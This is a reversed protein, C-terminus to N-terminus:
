PSTKNSSGRKIMNGISIKSNKSKTKPLKPMSARPPSGSSNQMLPPVDDLSPADTDNRVSSSLLDDNAQNTDDYSSAKLASRPTASASDNGLSSRMVPSHLMSNKPSGPVSRIDASAAAEELEIVRQSLIAVQEQLQVNRWKDNNKASSSVAEDRKTMSIAKALKEKLKNNEDKMTSNLWKMHEIKETLEIKERNDDTENHRTDNAFSPEADLAAIKQKLKDVEIKHKHKEENLSLSLSSVERELKTTKSTYDMLEQQMEEIEARRQLSIKEMGNQLQDMESSMNDVVQEQAALTQELGMIRANKEKIRISFEERMEHNDKELEKLRTSQEIERISQNEKTESLQKHLRDIEADRSSAFMTRNKEVSERMAESQLLKDRLESVLKSESSMKLIEIEDTLTIIKQNLADREDGLENCQNTLEDMQEQSPLPNGNLDIDFTNSNLAEDKLDLLEKELSAIQDDRAKIKAEFDDVTRDALKRLSEIQKNFHEETAKKEGNSKELEDRLQDLEDAAAKASETKELQTTLEDVRELLHEKEDKMDDLRRQLSEIRQVDVKSSAVSQSM